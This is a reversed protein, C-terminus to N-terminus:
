TQQSAAQKVHRAILRLLAPKGRRAQASAASRLNQMETLLWREIEERKQANEAHLRLAKKRAAATVTFSTLDSM